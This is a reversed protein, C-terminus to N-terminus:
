DAVGGKAPIYGRKAYVVYKVKKGRQDVVIMPSGDPGVMEVKIKRYKGAPKDNGAPSYALSYQNRLMAAAERFIGPLEGEFRPFWARGGTAEAFTRLQNEAQLYGVVASGRLRHEIREFDYRATGVALITVDTQRVRMIMDDLNIRSFSDYGSALLLISKKGKVDKLRDLTDVVADFLNAESFGPFYLRAVADQIERKNQTFDAEIRPRMDFSVLAAWDDKNLSALFDRSWERAFYPAWGGVYNSFEMLVVVTIPEETPSFNTITQPIGDELIRFNERKLGPIFEGSQTTVVVDVRVLPVEVTIQYEKQDEAPKKPPQQQAFARLEAGPLVTLFALTGALFSRIAAAHM